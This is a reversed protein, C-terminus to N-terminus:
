SPKVVQVTVEEDVEQVDASQVPPPHRHPLTLYAPPPASSRWSNGHHTAAATGGFLPGSGRSQCFRVPRLMVSLHFLGKYVVPELVRVFDQLRMLLSQDIVTAHVHHKRDNVKFHAEPDQCPLLSMLEDFVRGLFLRILQNIILCLLLRCLLDQFM